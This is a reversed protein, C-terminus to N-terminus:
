KTPAAASESKKKEAAAKAAAQQAATWPPVIGAGRAYAISQGLHEHVHSLLLLSTGLVTSKMFPLTVPKDWGDDPVAAFGDEMSKFSAKLAVVIDAKKTLSKEYTNLNYNAPPEFGFAASGLGYNGSAVHMFVEGTSRVDKSPRYSYKSEPTAEALAILKEEADKFWALTETKFGTPMAADDASAAVAFSGVAILAVLTAIVFRRTHPM